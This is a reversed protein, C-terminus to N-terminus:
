AWIKGFDFNLLCEGIVFPFTEQGTELAMHYEGDSLEFVEALGADGDVIVYYKVGANRYKLYKIDRDKPATSVSLIEFVLSPTVTLYKAKKIAEIDGCVVLNDPELVNEDDLKWDVPLLALCKLCKKLILRLQFDINGSIRQHRINPQPSMAFPIGDILEWRDEWELFDNWTYKREIKRAEM